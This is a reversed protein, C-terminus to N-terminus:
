RTLQRVCSVATPIGKFTGASNGGPPSAFAHFWALATPGVSWQTSSWSDPFSAHGPTQLKEQVTEGSICGAAPSGSLECIAPLYWDAYSNLTARCAGAAYNALPVGAHDDAAVILQTNCAGDFKGDCSPLPGTSDDSVGPVEFVAAPAVKHQSWAYLSGSAGAIAVKGGVSETFPGADSLAFVHGGQYFSGYDLVFVDVTPTNTNSGRVALSVSTSVTGGPVASAVAGPDITISCSAGPALTGCNSLYTTGPPLAVTPDVEVWTAPHAGTNLVAFSRSAGSAKLALTSHSLTLTTATAPPTVIPLPLSSPAPAAAPIGASGGGCAALFALLSLVWFKRHTFASLM